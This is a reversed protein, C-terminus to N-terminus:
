LYDRITLEFHFHFNIFPADQNSSEVDKGEENRVVGVIPKKLFVLARPGISGSTVASHARM